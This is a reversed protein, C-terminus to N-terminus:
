DRPGGGRPAPPLPSECARCPVIAADLDLLLDAPERAPNSSRLVVGDGDEARKLAMVVVNGDIGAASARIPQHRRL